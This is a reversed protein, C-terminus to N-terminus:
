KREFIEFGPSKWIQLNGKDNYVILGELAPNGLILKYSEELTLIMCLTALADAELCTPAKIHTSLIKNDIPTGTRPDILHSHKFGQEDVYYEELNGSSSYAMNKLPTEKISNKSLDSTEPHLLIHRNGNNKPTKGYSIADTGFELQFNEIGKELFYQTLLDILLGKDLYSLNIMVGPQKARIYQPTVELNEVRCLQKLEEIKEPTMQRKNSFEQGWAQILPLIMHNVAGQYERTYKLSSQLAHPLFPSRFEHYGKRNFESIESDPRDTNLALDYATIISDIKKEETE